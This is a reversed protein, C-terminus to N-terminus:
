SWTLAPNPLAALLPGVLSHFGTEVAIQLPTKRKRNKAALADLPRGVAISKEIEYLRGARCLTVLEEANDPALPIAPAAM